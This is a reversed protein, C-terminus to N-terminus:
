AQMRGAKRQQKRTYMPADANELLPPADVIVFRDRYREKLHMFLEYLGPDAYPEGGAQGITGPLIVRMRPIGTPQLIADVPVNEDRLYDVLGPANAAGTALSPRSGVTLDCDVLVATKTPDLAFSSALNRAVFSTGSGYVMGTVAVVFNPPAARQVLGLRMQRFANAVRRDPGAFDIFGRAELERATWPDPSAMRAIEARGKGLSTTAYPSSSARSGRRTHRGEERIREVAKQIKSM